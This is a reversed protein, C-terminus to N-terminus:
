SEVSSKAPERTYTHESTISPAHSICVATVLGVQCELAHDADLGHGDDRIQSAMSVIGRVVGGDGVIVNVCPLIEANIFVGIWRMRYEVVAGVVRM